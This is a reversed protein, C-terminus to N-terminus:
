DDTATPIPRCFEGELEAVSLRVVKGGVRYGTLKGAAIARRLTVPHVDYRRAAAAISIFKQPPQTPAM